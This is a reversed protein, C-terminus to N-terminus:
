KQSQPTHIDVTLKCHPTVRCLEQLQTFTATHGTTIQTGINNIRLTLLCLAALLFVGLAIGIGLTWAKIHPFRTPNYSEETM